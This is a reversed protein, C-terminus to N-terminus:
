RGVGGDSARRFGPTEIGPELEADLKQAVERIERRTAADTVDGDDVAQGLRHGLDERGHRLLTYEALRLTCAAAAPDDCRAADLADVLQQKARGLKQTNRRM